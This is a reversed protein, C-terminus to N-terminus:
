KQVESEEVPKPRGDNWWLPLPTQCAKCVCDGPTSRRVGTIERLFYDPQAETHPCTDTM